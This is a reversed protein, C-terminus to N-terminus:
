DEVEESHVWVSRKQPKKMGWLLWRRREYYLKVERLNLFSMGGKELTNCFDDM